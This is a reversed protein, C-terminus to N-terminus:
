CISTTSPSSRAAPMWISHGYAFPAITPDHQYYYKLAMTDKAGANWDLDGVVQDAFFFATGPIAVNYPHAATTVGTPNPILWKGPEGKVAPANFLSYAVSSGPNVANNNLQGASLPAGLPCDYDPQTPDPQPCWGTNAVSALGSESRDDSLGVPVSFRSYGLEQDSVHLHQYGIFGFLKDKILAGGVTGGIIERHLEPVKQDAPIDPDNNFFFPAANLWSTGRHLYASGHLANTGAKTSMDLHAGATSGQQADYMSTNVRVEEITEPAPSPIANGISLYVSASSQIIGGATSNGSGTNNIVRFSAVQSTTKGNFLNSADVGNLLFTNSTDRQGNAWIPANGLGSNVGTGGPLEASVGTSQIALGTFSGTPLPAMDIQAHDLVYGNTTDVANLLPTAEVEVTETTKGVKLQANVTATRDAQVTIHPTKQVDFNTATYSLTYTGIPLNVFAYVGSANTTATRTLSTQEDVATVKADPIVSGSSDTVEGTIGGLTQQALLSPACLAVAAAVAPLWPLLSSLKRM